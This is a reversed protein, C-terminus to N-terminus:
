IMFPKVVIFDMEDDEIKNTQVFLDCPEKSDNHTHEVKFGYDKEYHVNTLKVIDGYQIDGQGVKHIRWKTKNADLVNYCVYQSKSFAGMWVETQANMGTELCKVNIIANNDISGSRIPDEAFFAFQAADNDRLTPLYHIPGNYFHGIFKKSNAHQLLLPQQYQPKLSDM